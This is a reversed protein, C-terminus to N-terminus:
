VLYPRLIQPLFLFGTPFSAVRGVGALGLDGECVSDFDPASLHCHCDVLGLSMTGKVLEALKEVPLRASSQPRPFGPPVMRGLLLLNGAPRTCSREVSSLM